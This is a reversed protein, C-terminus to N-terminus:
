TRLSQRHMPGGNSSLGPKCCIDDCCGRGAFFFFFFFFFLLFVFCLGLGAGPKRAEDFRSYGWFFLRLWSVAGLLIRLRRRVLCAMRRCCRVQGGAAQLGAESWLSKGKLRLSRAWFFVVSGRPYLFEM